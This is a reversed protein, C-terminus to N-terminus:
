MKIAAPNVETWLRKLRGAFAHTGTDRLTAGGYLKSILHFPLQGGSSNIRAAASVAM